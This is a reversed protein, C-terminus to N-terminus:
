FGEDKSIVGFKMTYLGYQEELWAKEKTQINGMYSGWPVFVVRNGFKVCRSVCLLMKDFDMVRVM